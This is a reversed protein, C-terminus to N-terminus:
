QPTQRFRAAPVVSSPDGRTTAPPPCLAEVPDNIEFTVFDIDRGGNFPDLIVRVPGGKDCEHFIFITLLGIDQCCLTQGNTVFDDGGGFGIDLWPVCHRKEHMGIPVM